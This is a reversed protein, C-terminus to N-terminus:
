LQRRRKHQETGRLEPPELHDPRDGMGSGGRSPKRVYYWVIAVVAVFIFPIFFLLNSMDCTIQVSLRRWAGHAM